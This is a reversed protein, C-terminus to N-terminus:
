VSEERIQHLAIVSKAPIKWFPSIGGPPRYKVADPLRGEGIYQRIRAPTVGLIEAATNVTVWDVDHGCVPCAAM